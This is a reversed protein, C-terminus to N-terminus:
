PRGHRHRERGRGSPPLRQRHEGRSEDDLVDTGSLNTGHEYGNWDGWYVM